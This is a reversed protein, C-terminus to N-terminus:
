CSSGATRTPDIDRELDVGLTERIKQAEEGTPVLQNVKQRFDSSMVSRVDAYGVAVADAPIYALDSTSTRGMVVGLGGSYYAVLGTGVGVAVLAASGILFNRTRHNM